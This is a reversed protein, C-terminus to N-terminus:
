WARAAPPRGPPPKPKTLAHRVRPFPGGPTAPAEGAELGSAARGEAMGQAGTDRRGRASPDHRPRAGDPQPQSAERDLSEQDEPDPRREGPGCAQGGREGHENEEGPPSEDREARARRSACRQRGPPGETEPHRPVCREDEDQM